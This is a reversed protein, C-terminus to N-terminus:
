SLSAVSFTASFPESWIVVSKYKSLDLDDPLVINYSGDTAPLPGLELGGDKVQSGDTRTGLYVKLDPGQASTFNEFRLIKQGSAEIGVTATGRAYHIADIKTFEGKAVVQALADKAPATTGEPGSVAETTNTVVVMGSVQANAVAAPVDKSIGFPDPQRRAGGNFLPIVVLVVVAAIVVLGLALGGLLLAQKSPKKVAPDPRSAPKQGPQSPPTAAPLNGRDEPTM